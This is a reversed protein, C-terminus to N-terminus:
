NFDSIAHIPRSPRADVLSCKGCLKEECRLGKNCQVNTWQWDRLTIGRCTLVLLFVALACSAPRTDEMECTVENGSMTEKHADWSMWADAYVSPRPVLSTCTRQGLIYFPMKLQHICLRYTSEVVSFLKEIHTDFNNHPHMLFSFM